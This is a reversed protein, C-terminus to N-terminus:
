KQEWNEREAIWRGLVNSGAAYGPNELGSGEQEWNERGAIWEDLSVTEFKCTTVSESEQEWAERNSVWEMLDVTEMLSSEADFGTGEQEWIERDAIWSELSYANVATLGTASPLSAEAHQNKETVAYALVSVSDKETHGSVNGALGVTLLVLAATTFNKTTKMAEKKLIKRNLINQKQKENV